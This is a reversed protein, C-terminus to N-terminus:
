STPRNANSSDPKRSARSELFSQLMIQAAVKDLRMKRKKRSLQASRLHEEAIASTLREDWFALPLAVASAAWAGFRRAERAKEGEEGGMHIPLGVVVGVIQYERALATLRQGDVAISSRSYNELPSAIRQEDDSVAIGIRRTGYDLGLLRGRQPLTGAFLVPQERGKPTMPTDEAGPECSGSM